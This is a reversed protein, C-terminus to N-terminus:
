DSKGIWKRRDNQETSPDLSMKPHVFFMDRCPKGNASMTGLVAATPVQAPEKPM